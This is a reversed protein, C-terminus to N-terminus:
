YKVSAVQNKNNNNNNNNNNDDDNDDYNDDNNDNDNDDYNDDNNDNNNNNNNDDDDDNNSNEWIHIHFKLVLECRLWYNNNRITRFQEATQLTNPGSVTVNQYSLSFHRGIGDQGSFFGATFYTSDSGSGALTLHTHTHTPPPPPMHMSISNLFPMSFSYNDRARKSM